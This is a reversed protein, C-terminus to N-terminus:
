KVVDGWTPAAIARAAAASVAQKEAATLDDSIINNTNAPDEFRANPLKDRLYVLATSVREGLTGSYSYRLAEIVALELYFSPFDLGKQNRWLKLIRTEQLRGANKVTAIHVAVNTKTWTDAKGRYLSHDLSGPTQQKAPVLDVDYMSGGSTKVRVNISVNQRRTTYGAAKLARDLSNYLDKLTDPVHSAVSLFLDIDTGSRNATGKAFSGSPSVDRLYGNGWHQLVPYLISQAQRAPAYPGTDIAERALIGLLYDSM